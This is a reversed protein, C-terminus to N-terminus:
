SAGVVSLFLRELKEGEIVTNHRELVAQRGVQAMEEVRAPSLSVLERIAQAIQDPRGATVVWGSRGHEVLEPIGAVCTAIVPRGLAM